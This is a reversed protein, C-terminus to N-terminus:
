SQGCNNEYKQITKDWMSLFDDAMIIRNFMEHHEKEKLDKFHEDGSILNDAYYCYISHLCDHLLGRSTSNNGIFQTEAMLVMEAIPGRVAVEPSNNILWDLRDFPEDISKKDWYNRIPSKDIDMGICMFFLIFVLSLKINKEGFTSVDFKNEKLKDLIRHMADDFIQYNDYESSDEDCMDNLIKKLKKSMERTPKTWDKLSVIDVPITKKVDGHITKWTNGLSLKTERDYWFQKRDNLPCELELYSMFLESPSKLLYDSCNFQAWYILEDKRKENSNLLVEWLVIGSICFDIKLAERLARFMEFDSINDSLYNLASTDLYYITNM